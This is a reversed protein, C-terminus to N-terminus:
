EKRYFIFFVEKRLLTLEFVNETTGFVNKIKIINGITSKLNLNLVELLSSLILVIILFTFSFKQCIQFIFTPKKPM